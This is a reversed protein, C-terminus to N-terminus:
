APPVDHAPLYITFTTGKGLTTQLHIVGKGEKQIQSMAPPVSKESRKGANLRLKSRMLGSISLM